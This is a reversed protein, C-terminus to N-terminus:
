KFSLKAIPIVPEGNRIFFTEGTEVNVANIKDDEDDALTEIIRMLCTDMLIHYFIEGYEIQKFTITEQERKKQLELTKPFGIVMHEFGFVM